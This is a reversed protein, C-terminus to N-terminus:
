VGDSDRLSTTVNEVSMPAKKVSAYRRRVTKEMTAHALMYGADM